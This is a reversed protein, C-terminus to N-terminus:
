EVELYNVRLYSHGAGNRNHPGERTDFYRQYASQRGNMGRSHLHRSILKRGKLPLRQM